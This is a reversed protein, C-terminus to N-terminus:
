LGLYWANDGANGFFSPQWTMQAKHDGKPVQFVIDGEVAGGASLKGSNLENNATYSQPPVIEEDTINGSGSKVHFDFPNYNKEDSGTNNLKIHVVIFENGPKPKTIEDAALTKVSILTCAVGDVTITQGVKAIQNTTSTDTSQSSTATSITSITSTATSKTASSVLAFVGICSLVLVGAIIALILGLKSKKKAPQKFPPMSQPPPQYMPQQWQGPQQLQKQEHFLTGPEWKKIV